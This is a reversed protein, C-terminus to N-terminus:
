PQCRAGAKAAAPCARSARTPSPAPSRRTPAVKARPTTSSPAWRHVAAPRAGRDARRDASTSSTPTSRSPRNAWDSGPRCRHTCSRPRGSARAPAPVPTTRAGPRIARTRTSWCTRRCATAVREQHDDPPRRQEDRVLQRRRQADARSPRRRLQLGPLLWPHQRHRQGLMDRGDAARALPRGTTAALTFCAAVSACCARAPPLQRTPDARYGKGGPAPHLLFM